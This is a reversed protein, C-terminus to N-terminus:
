ADLLQSGRELSRSGIGDLFSKHARQFPLTTVMEKDEVKLLQAPNHAFKSIVVILFSGMLPDLLSTRGLELCLTGLGRM